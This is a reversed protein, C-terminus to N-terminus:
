PQSCGGEAEPFDHRDKGILESWQGSGDIRYYFFLM